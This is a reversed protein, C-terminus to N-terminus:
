LLNSFSNENGETNVFYCGATVNEYKVIDYNFPIPLYYIFNIFVVLFLYTYQVLKTRLMNSEVPYKVSLLREILIFVLIMSSVSALSYLVYMITKCILSSHILLDINFGLKLYYLLISILFVSDFLFLCIFMEKPKIEIINTIQKISLMILGTLNGLLGIALVLPAEIYFVFFEIENM